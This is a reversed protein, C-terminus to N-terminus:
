GPAMSFKACGVLPCLLLKFLVTGQKLRQDEVGLVTSFCHLSRSICTGADPAAQLGLFRYEHAGEGAGSAVMQPTQAQGELMHPVRSHAVRTRASCAGTRFKTELTPPIM